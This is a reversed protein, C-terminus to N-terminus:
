SYDFRVRMVKLAEQISPWESASMRIVFDDNLQKLLGLTLDDTRAWPFLQDKV